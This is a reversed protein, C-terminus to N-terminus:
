MPRDVPPDFGADKRVGYSPELSRIAMALRFDPRHNKGDVLSQVLLKPQLSVLHVVVIRYRPGHESLHRTQRKNGVSCSRFHPLEKQWSETPM